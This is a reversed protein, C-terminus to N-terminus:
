PAAPQPGAPSPKGSRKWAVLGSTSCAISYLVPIETWIPHIDRPRVGLLKSEPDIEPSRGIASVPVYVVLEAFAEATAVVEPTLEWLVARVRKSVDEIVTLDIGSLDVNKSVVWPDPLEMGGMLSSWCDYKTVIVVLVQKHKVGYHLGVQRRIRETAEQLIVDQRIPKERETRETREVMQPDQTRGSCARRFRHDQTPDFLFFLARSM